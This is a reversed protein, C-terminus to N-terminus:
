QHGGFTGFATKGGGTTTESLVWAGAVEQATPGYLAGDFNGHALNSFGAPGTNTNTSTQGGLTVDTTGRTL